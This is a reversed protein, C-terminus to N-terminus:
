RVTSRSTIDFSIRSLSSPILNKCEVKGSQIFSFLISLGLSAFMTKLFLSLNFISSLKKCGFTCSFNNDIKSFFSPNVKISTDAGFLTISKNLHTTIQLGFSTRM